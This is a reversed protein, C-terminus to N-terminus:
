YIHLVIFMCKPKEPVNVRILWFLSLSVFEQMYLCENISLASCVRSQLSASGVCFFMHVNLPNFDIDHKSESALYMYM